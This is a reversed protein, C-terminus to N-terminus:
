LDSRGPGTFEMEVLLAHITLAGDGQPSTLTVQCPGFIEAADHRELISIDEGATVEGQGEMMLM